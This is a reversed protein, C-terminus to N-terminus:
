GARRGLFVPSSMDRVSAWCAAAMTWGAPGSLSQAHSRCAGARLPFDAAFFPADHAQVLGPGYEGRNWPGRTLAPDLWLRPRRRGSRNDFAWRSRFRTNARAGTLRYIGFDWWPLFSVFSIYLYLSFAARFGAHGRRGALPWPRGVPVGFVLLPGCRWSILDEHKSGANIHAACLPSLRRSEM